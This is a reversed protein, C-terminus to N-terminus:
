FRECNRVALVEDLTIMIVQGINFGFMIGGNEMLPSNVRYLIIYKGNAFSDERKQM